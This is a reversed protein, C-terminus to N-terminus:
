RSEGERWSREGAGVGRLVPLAEGAISDTGNKQVLPHGPEPQVPVPLSGACKDLQLRATEKPQVNVLCNM